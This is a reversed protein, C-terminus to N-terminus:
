IDEWSDPSERLYDFFEALFEKLFDMDVKVVAAIHSVENRRRYLDKGKKDKRYDLVRSNPPSKRKRRLTKALDDFGHIHEVVKGLQQIILSPYFWLMERNSEGDTFVYKLYISYFNTVERMIELIPGKEPNQNANNLRNKLFRAEENDYEDVRPFQWKGKEWWAKESELAKVLVGLERLLTYETGCLQHISRAFERYNEITFANREDMTKSSTVDLGEKMWYANAGISLLSQYSWHKNSATTMMVPIGPFEERIRLLVKAGSL